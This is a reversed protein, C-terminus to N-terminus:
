GVVKQEMTSRWGSETMMSTGYGLIWGLLVASLVLSGAQYLYVRHGEETSLGVARLIGFESLHSETM